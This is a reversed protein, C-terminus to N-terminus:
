LAARLPTHISTSGAPRLSAARRAEEAAQGTYFRDLVENYFKKDPHKQADYYPPTILILKAGSKEVAEELRQVRAACWDAGQYINGWEPDIQPWRELPLVLM